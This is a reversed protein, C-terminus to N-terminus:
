GNGQKMREQVPKQKVHSFYTLKLDLKKCKTYEM